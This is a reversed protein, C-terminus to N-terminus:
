SLKFPEVSWSNEPLEHKAIAKMRGDILNRRMRSHFMPNMKLSGMFSKIGMDTIHALLRERPFDTTRQQRRRINRQNNASVYDDFHHGNDMLLEPRSGADDHAFGGSIMGTLVDESSPLSAIPEKEDICFNHFICLARVLQTAKSVTINVPLPKHLVGWRHVLMGFACEINIRLQSQFFNYADKCGQQSGKYPTAMFETSVYANDGFFTLNPALFDINMLLLKHIESTTFGLYDSTSSPHGMEIDLFKRNHDCIGQLTIGYKKKRGCFFKKPGVGIERTSQQNPKNIWILMGDICGVRTSFGVRLKKQFGEAILLQARHDTPFRIQIEPCQNIADAVEWVSNYVQKYGVGHVQFIDLPDGGAFWRLAMSLRSSCSIDGNPTAGRKRKNTHSKMFIRIKGHLKWFMTETM